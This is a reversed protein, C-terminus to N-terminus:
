ARDRLAAMRNTDKGYAFAANRITKGLCFQWFLM